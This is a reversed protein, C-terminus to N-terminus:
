KQLLSQINTNENLSNQDIANKLNFSGCRIRTLTHLYAGTQLKEGIDNAISRIYTGKSCTIDLELYPYNYAILKTLLTIKTPKREVTIDKRALHYLKQGNMKKASYMPPIQEITGQFENIVNKIENLTPTKDSVFELKEESDYSKTKFGLHIKCLYQKEQTLFTFSKKTYDRGLLIIMLGTAFPDLTGAHGIKKIKTLKRLLHIISFSTKNKAKNVLLIGSFESTKKM